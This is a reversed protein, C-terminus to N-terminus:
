SHGAVRKCNEVFQESTLDSKARNCWRCCSVCNEFVYGVLNNQRDVGNSSFSSGSPRKTMNSNMTGCYFCPGSVLFLFQDKTLEFLIRRKRAQCKYNGFLSEFATFAIKKRRKCGCSQSRRQQLNNRLAIVEKGCVCRARWYSRDGAFHSLGLITLDGIVDGTLNKYVKGKRPM